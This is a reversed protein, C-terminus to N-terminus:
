KPRTQGSGSRPNHALRAGSAVTKEKGLRAGSQYTVSLVKQKSNSMIINPIPSAGPRKLITERRRWIPASRQSRCPILIKKIESAFKCAKEAIFNEQNEPKRLYDKVEKVYTQWWTRIKQVPFSVGKTMIRDDRRTM